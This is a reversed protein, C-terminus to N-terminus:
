LPLEKGSADTVSWRSFRYSPNPMASLEVRAGVPVRGEDTLGEAMARITGHEPQTLTLQSTPIEKVEVTAVDSDAFLSYTADDTATATVSCFYYFIGVENTLPMYTSATAGTIATAKKKDTGNYRYWQYSLPAGTEHSATVKLETTEGVYVSANQPQTTITPSALVKVTFNVTYSETEGHEATVTLTTSGTGNNLTVTTNGAVTAKEDKAEATLTITANMDTGYPLEITQTEKTLDIAQATGDGVQYNLSQLTADTSAFQAEVTFPYNPVTFTNDAKVNVIENKDGTKYVQPYGEVLVFGEYATATIRVPTGSTLNGLKDPAPSLNLTGGREGPDLTVKEPVAPDDPKAKTQQARAPGGALALLAAFLYLIYTRM